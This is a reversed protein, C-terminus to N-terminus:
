TEERDRYLGKPVNAILPRTQAELAEQATRTQTRLHRVTVLAAIAAVAAAVVSGTQAWEATTLADLGM